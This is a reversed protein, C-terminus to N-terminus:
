EDEEYDGAFGFGFTQGPIGGTLNIDAKAAEDLIDDDSIGALKLAWDSYLCHVAWLIPEELTDRDAPVVGAVGPVGDESEVPAYRLIPLTVASPPDECGGDASSLELTLSRSEDEEGENETIMGLTFILEEQKDFDSIRLLNLGVRNQKYRAGDEAEGTWNKSWDYAEDGTTPRLEQEVTAFSSELDDDSACAVM